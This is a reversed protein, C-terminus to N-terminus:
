RVERYPRVAVGWQAEPYHPHAAVVDVQHGRDRLGEALVKSVPGIGTPEPDYNYSWLQVRFPRLADDVAQSGPSGTFHDATLRGRRGPRPPSVEELTQDSGPM